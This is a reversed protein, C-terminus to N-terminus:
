KLTNYVSMRTIKLQEAIEVISYGRSMLQEILYKRARMTQPNHIYKRGVLATIKAELAADNPVSEKETKGGAGESVSKGMFPLVARYFIDLGKADELVSPTKVNNADNVMGIYDARARNIDDGLIGLVFKYNVFTAIDKEKLYASYSSWKYDAANKVLGAKVPNSHIYISAALIYNDNMCVAARYPKCFVPGKREYKKNFYNAYIEFLNKMAQSLNAKRLRALLHLHNLMLAFAFVDYDFKKANEKMLHLMRLYDAEELFLPEKGPARQTIHYAGEEFILRNRGRFFREIKNNDMTESEKM